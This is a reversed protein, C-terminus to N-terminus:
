RKPTITEESAAASSTGRKTPADPIPSSGGLAAQLYVSTLSLDVLDIIMRALKAPMRPDSGSVHWCGSIKPLNTWFRTGDCYQFHSPMFVSRISAVHVDLASSM